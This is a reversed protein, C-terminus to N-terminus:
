REVKCAEKVTLRRKIHKCFLMDGNITKGEVYRVYDIVHDIGSCYTAEDSQISFRKNITIYCLLVYVYM